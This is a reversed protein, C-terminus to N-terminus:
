KGGTQKLLAKKKAPAQRRSRGSEGTKSNRRTSTTGVPPPWDRWYSLIKAVDSEDLQSLLELVASMGTPACIGRMWDGFRRTSVGALEALNEHTLTRGLRVQTRLQIQKLADRLKEDSQVTKGNKM